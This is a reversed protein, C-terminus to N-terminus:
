NQLLNIYQRLNSTLFHIKLFEFRYIYVNSGNECNILVRKKLNDFLFEKFEMSMNGDIIETSFCFNTCLKRAHLITVSQNIICCTLRFKGEVEPIYGGVNQIFDGIVKDPNKFDYLNSHCKYDM